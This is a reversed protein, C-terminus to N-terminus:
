AECVHFHLGQGVWLGGWVAGQLVAKQVQSLLFSGITEKWGMWALCVQRAQTGGSSEEVMSGEFGAPGVLGVDLKGM